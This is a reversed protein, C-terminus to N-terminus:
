GNQKWSFESIWTSPSCVNLIGRFQMFFLERTKSFLAHIFFSSVSYSILTAIVCGVLGHSQILMINLGINLVAGIFLRISGILYLNYQLYYTWSTHSLMVFPLSWILLACLPAGPSYENGYIFLVLQSGYFFYVVSILFCIKMLRSMLKIFHERFSEPYESFRKTLSPLATSVLISLLPIWSDVLRVAVGYHGTSESGLIEAIMIQDVRMYLIASLAGVLLFLGRKFHIRIVSWNWLFHIKSGYVSFRTILVMDLSIAWALYVVGGGNMLIAIKVASSIFLAMLQIVAIRTFYERSKLKAQFVSLCLLPVQIGLVLCLNIRSEEWNSFYLIIYGVISFFTGSLLKLTFLAGLDTTEDSNKLSLVQVMYHDMGLGAMTLVISVASLAFLLEGYVEAGMSRAIWISFLVSFAMRTIKEFLLAIKGIKV